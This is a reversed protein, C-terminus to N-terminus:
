ITYNDTKYSFVEVIMLVSKRIFSSWWKTGRSNSQQSDHEILLNYINWFYNFKYPHEMMHMEYTINKKYHEHLSIDCKM